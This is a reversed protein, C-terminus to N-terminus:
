PIKAPFPGLWFLPPEGKDSIEGRNSIIQRKRSAFTLKEMYLYTHRWILSHFFPFRSGALDAKEMEKIITFKKDEVSIANVSEM